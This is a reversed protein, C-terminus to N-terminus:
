HTTYSADQWREKPPRGTEGVQSYYDLLPRASPRRCAACISHMQPQSTRRAASAPAARGRRFTRSRGRRRWIGRVVSAVEEGQRRWVGDGFTRERQTSRWWRRLLLLLSSRLLSAPTADEGEGSRRRVREVGHVSSWATSRASGRARRSLRDVVWVERLIRRSLAYCSSFLM